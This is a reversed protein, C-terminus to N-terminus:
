TQALPTASPQSSLASPQNSMKAILETKEASGASSGFYYAVISLWATGLSGLMIDFIRQNSDPITHHCLFWLLLFFGVTVALALLSPVLDKVAAQRARASAMDQEALASIKEAHDWEAQQLEDQAAVAAAQMQAKVTPDLRDALAKLITNTLPTLAGGTVANGAVAGATAAGLGVKGLISKVDIAM